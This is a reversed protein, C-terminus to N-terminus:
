VRVWSRTKSSMIAADVVRQIDYAERFDPGSKEGRGIAGLFEAMEIAKLDNFGLQHGGAVCFGGYPAHQPGAEIRTFGMHRPEGGSKYYLLENLREQTFVLSGKEGTLEFGLQMKRGTQIWNAELTGGCGRGFNVLLRAVDDVEVPKKDTAGRAVPREKIVTRVDASVEVIDGLLFRAMGIIHSGLDAIVGPGGSPDIRWTWPSAPDHMYDEAHIGRFGTIEGLEGAEVMQQALKLLPNKIYNFGVQTNVGRAEAAKVMELSDALSPSLPKECHVHKGAAIAALAMEKHMSNPTTISVVDVAPNAILATWDGTSSEFGYQHAAKAAADANVDAVAVLRPTPIDPFASLATRYAIAHAKGMFGTGILGIGLEKMRYVWVSSQACM